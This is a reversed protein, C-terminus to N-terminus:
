GHPGRSPAEEEGDEGLWEGLREFVDAGGGIIDMIGTAVDGGAELMLAQAERRSMAEYNPLPPRNDLSWQLVNTVRAERTDAQKRAVTGAHKARRWAVVLDDLEFDAMDAQRYINEVETRTRLQAQEVIIAAETGAAEGKKRAFGADRRAKDRQYAPESRIGLLTRAGRSALDDAQAGLTGKKAGFVGTAGDVRKHEVEFSLGAAGARAMLDGAEREVQEQAEAVLRDRRREMLTAMAEASAVEHAAGIVAMEGRQQALKVENRGLTDRRAARGRLMAAWGQQAGQRKLLVRAQQDHMDGQVRDYVAQQKLEAIQLKVDEATRAYEFEAQQQKAKGYEKVNRALLANGAGRAVGGAGRAAQGGGGGFIDSIASGVDRAAGVVDKACKVPNKLCEGVSM